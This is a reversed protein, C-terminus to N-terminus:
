SRRNRVRLPGRYLHSTRPQSPRARAFQRANGGRRFPCPRAACATATFTVPQGFALLVSLSGSTCSSTDDDTGNPM